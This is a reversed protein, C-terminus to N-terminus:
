EDKKEMTRRRARGGSEKERTAPSDYERRQRAIVVSM